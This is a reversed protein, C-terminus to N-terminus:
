PMWRGEPVLVLLIFRTIMLVIGLSAATKVFGQRQYERATLAPVVMGLVGSGSFLVLPTWAHVVMQLLFSFFVAVIFQRRGYLLVWRSALALLGWVLLAAALTIWIREPRYWTLLLYGPVILGGPSLQTREVYVLSVMLGLMFVAENM